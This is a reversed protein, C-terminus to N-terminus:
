IKYKEEEIYKDVANVYSDLYRFIKTKYDKIERFTKDQSCEIFSKSGHALHNRDNKVIVLKDEKRM